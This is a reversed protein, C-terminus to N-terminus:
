RIIDATHVHVTECFCCEMQYPCFCRGGSSSLIPMLFLGCLFLDAISLRLHQRRECDTGEGVTTVKRCCRKAALVFTRWDSTKSDIAKFVVTSSAKISTASSSRSLLRHVWCNIYGVTLTGLRVDLCNMWCCLMRSTNSLIHIM